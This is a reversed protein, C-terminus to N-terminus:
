SLPRVSVVSLAALHDLRRWLCSKSKLLPHLALRRFFAQRQVVLLPLQDGAQIRQHAPRQCARRTLRLAISEIDPSQWPAAFGKDDVSKKVPRRQLLFLADM